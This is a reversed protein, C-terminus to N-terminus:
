SNQLGLSRWECRIANMWSKAYQARDCLPSALVRQRLTAHYEALRAYNTALERAINVYEEPTEAILKSLGAHKLLSAGVRSVHERGQLTIVPVGMM